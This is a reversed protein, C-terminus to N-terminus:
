PTLGGGTEVRRQIERAHTAVEWALGALAGFQEHCPEIHQCHVELGIIALRLAESLNSTAGVLGELDLRRVFAPLTIPQQRSM